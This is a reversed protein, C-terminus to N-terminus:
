QVSLLQTAKFNKVSKLAATFKKVKAHMRLKYPTYKYAKLKYPRNKHRFSILTSIQHEFYKKKEVKQISNLVNKLKNFALTKPSILM